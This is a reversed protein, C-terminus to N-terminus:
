NKRAGLLVKKPRVCFRTMLVHTLVVMLTPSVQVCKMIPTEICIVAYKKDSVVMINVELIISLATV